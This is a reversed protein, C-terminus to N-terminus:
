SAEGVVKIISAITPIIFFYGFFLVLLGIVIWKVNTVPFSSTEETTTRKSLGTLNRKCYNRLESQFRESADYFHIACHFDEEFSPYVESSKISDLRNALAELDEEDGKYLLATKGVDGQPVIRFPDRPM